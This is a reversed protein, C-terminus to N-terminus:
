EEAETRFLYREGALLVLGRRYARAEDETLHSRRRADLKLACERMSESVDSLVRAQSALLRTAADGSLGSLVLRLHALCLWGSPGAEAAEAAIREAVAAETRVRVGCAACGEADVLMERLREVATAAPLGSIGRLREATDDLLPPYSGCLGRPSSIRELHWTHPPCLGRSALFRSRTPEDEVIALQYHCLFRYVEGSAAACVPCTGRPAIGPGPAARAKGASAATAAPVQARAPVKPLPARRLLAERMETAVAQLEALRGELDTGPVPPAGANGPEPGVLRLVRRRDEDLRAKSTADMEDVCSRLYGVVVEGLDSVAKELVSVNQEARKRAARRAALARPLPFPAAEEPTEALVLRRAAGEPDFAPGEWTWGEEAEVAETPEPGGTAGVLEAASRIPKRLLANMQPRLEDGLSPAIAGLLEVARGSLWDASGRAIQERGTSPDDALAHALERSLDVLAPDLVEAKWREVRERARDVLARREAALEGLRRGLEASGDEGLAAPGALARGRVGLAFRAGELGAIARDLIRVLLVTRRDSELFAALAAQLDPLGSASLSDDDAAAALARAASVPFLPVSAVGLRESLLRQTYAVVEAREEGSVQDVKNLVFFLKRVSKRVVDLFDLEARSLPGDASTVFIAADADPLFSLTAITNREHASGVGPTDVFHLGRRLFRVPAEVDVSQVRELNGPNGRETVFDALAAVPIEEVLPRGARRVFARATPGYRLATVVSTVPLTGTPLLPRGVIANMLSSKGRKFQGVVALLFRDEGLRPLLDHLSGSAWPAQEELLREIAKLLQAVAEKERLYSGLPADPEAPSRARTM